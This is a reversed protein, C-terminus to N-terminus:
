GPRSRLLAARALAASEPRPAPDNRLWMQGESLRPGAAREQLDCWCAITLDRAARGSWLGTDDRGFAQREGRRPFRDWRAVFAGLLCQDLLEADSPSSGVVVIANARGPMAQQSARDLLRDLREMAAVRDPREVVLDLRETPRDLRVGGLERGDPGRVALSEGIAGERLFAAIAAGLRQLSARDLAPDLRLAARVGRRVQLRSRLAAPIRPPVFPDIQLRKVHVFLSQGHRDLRFDCTRGTPTPTEAEVSCGARIARLAVLVEAAVAPLREASARDLRQELRQLTIRSTRDGTRRAATRLQQILTPVASANM